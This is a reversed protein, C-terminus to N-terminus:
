KYVARKDAEFQAQDIINTNTSAPISNEQMKNFYQLKATQQYYQQRFVNIQEENRQRQRVIRRKIERGRNKRSITVALVRFLRKNEM